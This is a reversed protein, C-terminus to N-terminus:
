WQKISTLTIKGMSGRLHVSIPQQSVAVFCESKQRSGAGLEGLCCRPRLSLGLVVFGPKDASDSATGATVKSVLRTVASVMCTEM